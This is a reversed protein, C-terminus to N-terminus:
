MGTYSSQFSQFMGSLIEMQEAFEKQQYMDFNHRIYAKGIEACCKSNQTFLSVTRRIKYRRTERCRYVNLIGCLVFGALVYCFLLIVQGPILCYIGFFINQFNYVDGRSKGNGYRAVILAVFFAVCQIPMHLSYLTLMPRKLKDVDDGAFQTSSDHVLRKELELRLGM